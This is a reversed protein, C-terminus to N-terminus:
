VEPFSRDPIRDREFLGGGAKSCKCSQLLTYVLSRFSEALTEGLLFKTTRITLKLIRLGLIPSGSTHRTKAFKIESPTMELLKEM